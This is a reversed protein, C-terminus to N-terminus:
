ELQWPWDGDTPTDGPAGHDDKQNWGVSYLSFGGTSTRSYHLPQGGILDHPLREAFQPQLLNLSDPYLGHALRYRELACAVFAENVLTQNRATTQTAKNFNPLMIATLFTYPSRYRLLTGAAANFRDMQAPFVLNKKPAVCSLMALKMQAMRAMNQYIWGRPAFVLPQRAREWLSPAPPSSNFLTALRTLSNNELTYCAAASEARLSQVFSPLLEIAKLQQQLALLEPERWAHLRLGDNVVSTYLGTVATDVMAAVLTLARDSPQGHLFRRLDHLLALERCAAESRGLLLDCQARQALIQAVSRMAVFNPVLSLYPQQYDGDIRSCPRALANRIRDFEPALPETWALYDTAAVAPKLTICFRHSGASEIRLSQFSRATLQFPLLRELDKAAVAGDSQIILRLPKIQELPRSTFIYRTIGGASSGLADNLLGAMRRPAAPDDLRAVADAETQLLSASAPLVQVEALLVGAEPPSPLTWPSPVGAPPSSGQIGPGIAPLRVFWEQMQPAKFINQEDPVPAPIFANWDFSEGKAELERRCKEWARKGRWDEIAYFLAVLTAFCALGFLWRRCIPAM